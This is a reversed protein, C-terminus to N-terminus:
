KKLEKICLDLRRIFEDVDRETTGLAAAFTLYDCPYADYHAGYGTFHHGAVSQEKGRAVVRTGSVARKFLMSGLFTTPKKRDRTLLATSQHSSVDDPARGVHQGEEADHLDVAARSGIDIAARCPLDKSANTSPGCERRHADSSESTSSVNPQGDGGAPRATSAAPKASPQHLTTLTLAISIPNNPTKLVREDIREALAELQTNAYRCFCAAM